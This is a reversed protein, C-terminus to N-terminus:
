LAKTNKNHAAKFLDFVYKNRTPSIGVRNSQKAADDWKESKIFGNLKVYQKKLKTIGLNFVMDFLAKQIDIPMTDFATTFGNATTYYDTLEKYFSLIHEDRQADIDADEMILTTYKNFSAAGYSRGFPRKKISDYEAYKETTTALVLLNNAGKKYMTVASIAAKNPLMHGIGVTVKGVTDLYLHPIRGEYKEINESVETKVIASLPM